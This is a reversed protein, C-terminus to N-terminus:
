KTARLRIRIDVLNKQFLSELDNMLEGLNVAGKDEQQDLLRIILERLDIEQNTGSNRIFEFHGVAGDEPM